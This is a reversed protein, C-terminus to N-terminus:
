KKKRFAFFEDTSMGSQRIISKLTGLPIDRSSHFPVTVRLSGKGLRIHSGSTRLKEFGAKFLIDLVERAKLSPM